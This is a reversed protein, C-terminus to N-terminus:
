GCTTCYPDLNSIILSFPIIGLHYKGTIKINLLYYYAKSLNANLWFNDLRTINFNESNGEINAEYINYPKIKKIREIKSFVKVQKETNAYEETYYLDVSLNIDMNTIESFGENDIKYPARLLPSSSDFDIFFYEHPISINELMAFLAISLGSFLSIFAISYILIFLILLKNILKHKQMQKIKQLFNRKFKFKM